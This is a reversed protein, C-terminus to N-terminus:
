AGYAIFKLRVCAGGLAESEGLALEAQHWEALRQVIALGMGHGKDSSDHPQKLRYFPQLVREREEEPIGDGDDEILVVIFRGQKEIVIEITSSAYQCANGFVNSLLMHLYRADAKVLFPSDSQHLRVKKNGNYTTILDSLCQHLDVSEFHLRPQNDELRAFDLLTSVLSEMEDLDREVRIAYKKQVDKSDSESLMEFGFRLRALPTKLDHSVARSLLKNDSMLRQIRDAMLNFDTEIAAIYSNDGRHLRQTLEGRGFAQTVKRLATLRKVLPALWLLVVALLGAYFSLTLLLRTGDVSEAEDVPLDSLVLLRNSSPIQLYVSLAMESDRGETQLLLPEGASLSQLLEAPLHMDTLAVTSLEYGTLDRAQQLALELDSAQSLAKAMRGGLAEYAQIEIPAKEDDLASYIESLLIGLGIVGVVVVLLLSGTLRNFPM